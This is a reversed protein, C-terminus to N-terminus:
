GHLHSLSKFMIEDWLNSTCRHLTAGTVKFFNPDLFALYNDPHLFFHMSTRLFFAPSLYFPFRLFFYFKRDAFGTWWWSICQFLLLLLNLSILQKERWHHIEPSHTITPLSGSVTFPPQPCHDVQDWQELVQPVPTCDASRSHLLGLHTTSSAACWLAFEFQTRDQHFSKM